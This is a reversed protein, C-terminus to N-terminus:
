RVRQLILLDYESGSMTNVVAFGESELLALVPRNDARATCQVIRTDSEILVHRVLARAVGLRRYEPLVLLHMLETQYWQRRVLRVSGAVQLGLKPVDMLAVRYDMINRYVRDGLPAIRNHTTLLEPLAAMYHLARTDTLLTIRISM